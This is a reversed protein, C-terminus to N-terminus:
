DILSSAGPGFGPERTAQFAVFNELRRFRLLGLHFFHLCRCRGGSALLNELTLLLEQEGTDSVEIRFGDYHGAGLPGSDPVGVSLLVQIKERTDEGGGDAVAVWSEDRCDRLLGPLQTVGGCEIHGLRLDIGSAAQSLDSRSIEFPGEEAVRARLGDLRCDVEGTDMGALTKKARLIPLPCNLGSADLEQDFDAM